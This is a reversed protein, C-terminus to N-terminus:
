GGVQLPILQTRPPSSDRGKRKSFALRYVADYQAGVVEPSRTALCHERAAAGLARRFQPNGALFSARQTIDSVEGPRFWLCGRGDSTIERHQETDAALLARGRAQAELAFSQGSQDIGCIVVDASAMAVPRADSPLISVWDSLQCIGAVERLLDEAEEECLFVFKVTPHQHKLVALVRMSRLVADRGTWSAPSPVSPILFFISEANGSAAQELWKRDPKSELYDSPIPEPVLFVNDAGVGRDLSALRVSHSKVVVAAARTLVFQEAVRFSRALWSNEDHSGDAAALKEVPLNFQYVVGSGSRVAAMGSAFSHAHIVEAASEAAADNLLRRWDRVHNWMRLLSIQSAELSRGSEAFASPLGFGAPTLLQPRMGAALQGEVLPLVDRAAECAHVVSWPHRKNIVRTGLPANTQDASLSRQASSKM